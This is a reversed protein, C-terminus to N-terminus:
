NEESSSYEDDEDKVAIGKGVFRNMSMPRGGAGGPRPTPALEELM